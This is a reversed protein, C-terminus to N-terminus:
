IYLIRRAVIWSTEIALLWNITIGWRKEILQLNGDIAHLGDGVWLRMCNTLLWSHNAALCCYRAKDESFMRILYRTSYDSAKLASYWFM